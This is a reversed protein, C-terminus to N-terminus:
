QRNGPGRGRSHGRAQGHGDGQPRHGSGQPRQGARPAQGQRDQGARDQGGREQRPQGGHHGPGRGGQPREHPGRPGGHSRGQDGGHHGEDGGDEGFQSPDSLFELAWVDDKGLQAILDAQTQIDDLILTAASGIEGPGAEHRGTGGFGKLKLQGDADQAMNNKRPDRGANAVELGTIDDLDYCGDVFAPGDSRDYPHSAFMVGGNNKFFEIVEELSRGFPLDRKLAALDAPIWVLRGRPLLFEVGFFVVLDKALEQIKEVPPVSDIGVLCAGDLGAERCAQLVRDIVEDTMSAPICVHLDVIM